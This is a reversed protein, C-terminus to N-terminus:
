DRLVAEVEALRAANEASSRARGERKAAEPRSALELAVRSLAVYALEENAHSALARRHAEVTEADGRVVPGTLAAAAGHSYLNRVGSDLLGRMAVDAEDRALGAERFLASSIAAVIVPFNAAFVAAAHYLVEQGEPIPVPRMGLRDALRRAAASALADGAIGAAAGELVTDEGALAVLPHFTGCPFGAERLASLPARGAVGSMQLMVCGSAPESSAIETAAHAIEDDRVALLVVTAGGLGRPLASAKESSSGANSARGHLAVVEAGARGLANALARGARGAGLIFYRESM